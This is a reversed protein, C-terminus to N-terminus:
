RDDIISVTDQAAFKSASEPWEDGSVLRLNDLYITAPLRMGAFSLEFRRIRDLALDRQLAGAKLSAVKVEIHTWGKQLFIKNRGDYYDESRSNGSVGPSADYIRVTVTSIDDRDTYLDFLLRDYGTWNAALAGSAVSPHARDLRMLASQMGHSPHDSAISLPGEWRSAAGSKEFDELVLVGRAASASRLQWGAVACTALLVMLAIRWLKM